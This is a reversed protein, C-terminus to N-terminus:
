RRASGKIKYELQNEAIEYNIQFIQKETNQWGPLDM